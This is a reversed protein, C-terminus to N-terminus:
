FIANLAAEDEKSLVVSETNVNETTSQPEEQIERLPANFINITRKRDELIKMISPLKGKMVSNEGYILVM